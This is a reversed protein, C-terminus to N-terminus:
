SLPRESGAIRSRVLKLYMQAGKNEPDRDLVTQFENEAAGLEGASLMMVGLLV